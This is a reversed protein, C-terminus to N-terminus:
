AMTRWIFTVIQARTCDADPSFTTAGTGKTIDNKVAWLVAGAYYADSKVDVFPNDTGAAPSNQSRWLFAVIQARTCTTDPSFATDSTGKTIGNEVAWLVANYYYSGAPVDIFPMASSKPAPSGASRWLFTVAQARTCIGDPSFHASDTGATVGNEAAWRVAEEYYSGSPVDTFVQFAAPKFTAKVTVGSAPMTFTFTGDGNDTLTIEKGTQDTVTITDRQYGTDPRVTVTVTDGKSANKPSVTVSGNASSSVSVTKSVSSSSGSDSVADEEDEEDSTNNVSLFNDDSPGTATESLNTGWASVPVDDALYYLVVTSEPTLAGSTIATDSTIPMNEFKQSGLSVNNEDLYEIEADMTGEGTGRIDLVYDESYDLTFVISDGNREVTGFSREFPGYESDLIFGNLSVSAEVPCDLRIITKSKKNEKAAKVDAWQKVNKGGKYYSGNNTDRVTLWYKGALSKYSKYQVTINHHKPDKEYKYATFTSVIKAGCSKGKVEKPCSTNVGTTEHGKACLSMKREGGEYSLCYFGEGNSAEGLFIVSHDAQYRIHEGPDAWKRIFDRVQTETLKGGPKLLRSQGSTGYTYTTGFLAYAMCGSGGENFYLKGTKLGPDEVYKKPVKKDYADSNQPRFDKILEAKGTFKANQDNPVKRDKSTSIGTPRYKAKFMLNYIANQINEKTDENANKLGNQTIWQVFKLENSSATVKITYTATANLLPSAAGQVKVTFTFTGEKLTKGTIEGTETNLELGDPLEGSEISWTLPKSADEAISISARYSMGIEGDPLATTEIKPGFFPKGESEGRYACVKCAKHWVGPTTDYSEKETEWEIDHGAMGSQYTCNENACAHWHKESDYTWTKQMKHLAIRICKNATCDAQPTYSLGNVSSGSWLEAGDPLIPKHTFASTQNSCVTLSSDADTLLVTLRKATVAAGEMCRLTNQGTVSLTLADLGSKIVPDTIEGQLDANNLSLTGTQPDFSVKGDNLINNQNRSTVREGYVWLDYETAQTTSGTINWRTYEDPTVALEKGSTLLDGSITLAVPDSCNTGGATGSITVRISNDGQHANEAATLKWIGGQPKDLALYKTLDTGAPIGDATWKGNEDEVTIEGYEPLESFDFRDGTLNLYLTASVPQLATGTISGGGFSAARIGMKNGSRIELYRYGNPSGTYAQVTSKIYDPSSAMAYENVYWEYEDKIDIKNWSGLCSYVSLMSNEMTLTCDKIGPESSIDLDDGTCEAGISLTSNNLTINGNVAAGSGTGREIRVAAGNGASTLCDTLSINGTVLPTTGADDRLFDISKSGTATLNGVLLPGDTSCDNNYSNNRVQLASSNVTINGQVVPLDDTTAGYIHHNSRSDKDPFLAIDGNVAKGYHNRMNLDYTSIQYTGRTLAATTESENIIQVSDADVTLNGNVCAGNASNSLSVYSAHIDANGDITHYAKTSDESLSSTGIMVGDADLVTLNGKVATNGSSSIILQSDNGNPTFGFNIKANNGIYLAPVSSGYLSLLGSGNVTLTGLRVYLAALMNDYHSAFIYVKGYVTLVGNKYWLYNSRGEPATDSHSAMDIDTGEILTGDDRTVDGKTSYYGEELEVGLIYAETNNAAMATTPLLGALMMFCLLLSVMRKRM